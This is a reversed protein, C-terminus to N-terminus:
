ENNTKTVMPIPQMFNETREGETVYKNLEADEYIKDPEMLHELEKDVASTKPNYQIDPEDEMIYDEDQEETEVPLESREFEQPTQIKPTIEKKKNKDQKLFEKKIIQKQDRKTPLGKGQQPTKRTIAANAQLSIGEEENNNIAQKTQVQTQNVKIEKNTLGRM